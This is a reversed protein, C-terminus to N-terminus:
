RSTKVPVTVVATGGFSPIFASHKGPGGAVAVHIDDPSQTLYYHDAVPTHAVQAYAHQNERSVRSVHVRSREYIEQQIDEITFGDRALTQAHEPGIILFYPGKAYITNAGPQSITNGFTTLLGDGSTSAHDNINHPPEGSMVTVVSDTSSFGRRTHFPAWPSAAENEGFCFTYKAPSGMTSRDMDGPKAGGVNLLILQLARGIAANARTGQGFCNSGCNVGLEDRLPGNFMLMPACSHTTALTGHLNYAPDCVGRLAAVVAGFDAPKCGAMVANAALSELTPVVQRPSIPAFPENDGRYADLMGNVAEEVPMVLPLGDSWGQAEAFDNWAEADMDGLELRPEDLSADSVDQTM